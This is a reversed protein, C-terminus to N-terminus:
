KKLPKADLNKLRCCPFLYIVSQSLFFVNDTQFSDLSATLHGCLHLRLSTATPHIFDILFALKTWKVCLTGWCPRCHRKKKKKRWDVKYGTWVPSFHYLVKIFFQQIFMMYIFQNQLLRNVHSRALWSHESVIPGAWKYCKQTITDLISYSSSEKVVKNWLSAWFFM